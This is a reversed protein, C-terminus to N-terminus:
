CPNKCLKNIDTTIDSYTIKSIFEKDPNSTAEHAAKGIM